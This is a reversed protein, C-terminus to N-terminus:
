AREVPAAARSREGWAALIGRFIADKVAGAVLGLALVVVVAVASVVVRVVDAQDM